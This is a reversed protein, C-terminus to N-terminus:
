APVLELEEDKVTEEIVVTNGAEAKVGEGKAVKVKKVRAHVPKAALKGAPLEFTLASNKEDVSVAFTQAAGSERFEYKSDAGFETMRDLIASASFGSTGGKKPFRLDIKDKDEVKAIMKAGELFLYVKMGAFAMVVKKSGNLAKTALTSLVVQGKNTITVASTGVKGKTAVPLTSRKVFTITNAM